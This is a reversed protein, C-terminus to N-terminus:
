LIESLKKQLEEGRLNKAIIKGQPDLLFNMPISEIGYMKAVLGRQEDLSVANNWVYKDEAVAKKWNELNDDVSFSLITFKKDKYNDFSSVLNPSEKRCPGCWSAWFDLLVYKGRFDSLHIDKGVLSKAGFDPAVTGINLKVVDELSKQYAIASPERQIEPSLLSFLTKALELNDTPKFNTRLANLAVISNPHTKIFSAISSQLLVDLQGYDNRLSDQIKVDKVENFKTVLDKQLSQINGLANIYDQQDLNLQTGSIKAHKLSDPSAILITGNELYLGVQDMSPHSYMNDGNQALLVFAKMPNPVSGTMEFHGNNLKASDKYFKGRIQYFMYATAPAKISHLDGIIKYNQSTPATQGFSLGPILLLSNFITKKINM